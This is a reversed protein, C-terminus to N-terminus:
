QSNFCRFHIFNFIVAYEQVFKLIFNSFLLDTERLYRKCILQIIIKTHAQRAPSKFPIQTNTRFLCLEKLIRSIM